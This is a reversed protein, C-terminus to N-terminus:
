VHIHYAFDNFHPEIRTWSIFASMDLMNILKTKLFIYNIKLNTVDPAKSHHM